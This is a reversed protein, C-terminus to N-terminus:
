KIRKLAERAATQVFPDQDNEVGKLCAVAKEGGLTGLATCANARVNAEPSKLAECLPETAEPNDLRGLAAAAEMAVMPVDRELAKTLPTV